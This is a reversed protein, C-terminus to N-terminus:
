RQRTQADLARRALQWDSEYEPVLRVRMTTGEEDVQVECSGGRDRARQNILGLGFNTQGM